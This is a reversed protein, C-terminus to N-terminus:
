LGKTIAIRLQEAQSTKVLSNFRNHIREVIQPRRNNELEIKFAFLCEDLTLTSLVPCFIVWNAISKEIRAAAKANVKAAKIQNKTLM